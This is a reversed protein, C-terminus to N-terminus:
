GRFGKGVLDNGASRSVIALRFSGTYVQREELGIRIWEQGSLHHLLLGMNSEQKPVGNSKSERIAFVLITGFM